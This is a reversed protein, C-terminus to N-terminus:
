KSGGLVRAAARQKDREVYPPRHQHLGPRTASLTAAAFPNQQKLVEYEQAARLDRGVEIDYDALTIGNAKAWDGAATEGELVFKARYTEEAGLMNSDKIAM